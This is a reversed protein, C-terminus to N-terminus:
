IKIVIPKTNAHIMCAVLFQKELDHKKERHQDCTRNNAFLKGCEECQPIKRKMKQITRNVPLSWPSVMTAWVPPESISIPAPTEQLRSIPRFEAPHKKTMHGILAGRIYYIKPCWLCNFKTLEYMAAINANFDERSQTGRHKRLYHNYAALASQFTQQCDLESCLITGTIYEELSKLLATQDCRNAIPHSLDIPEM